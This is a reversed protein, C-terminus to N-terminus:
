IIEAAAGLFPLSPAQLSQLNFYKSLKMTSYISSTLISGLRDAGTACDEM